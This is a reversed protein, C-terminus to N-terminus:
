LVESLQLALAVDEKKGGTAVMMQFAQIIHEPVLGRTPIGVHVLTGRWLSCSSMTLRGVKWLNRPHLPWYVRMGTQLRWEVITLEKFM